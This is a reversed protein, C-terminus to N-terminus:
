SGSGEGGDGGGGGSGGGGSTSGAPGPVPGAGKVTAGSEWKEMLEVAMAFTFGPRGKYKQFIVDAKECKDMAEILKQQRHQVWDENEEALYGDLTRTGCMYSSQRAAEDRGKDVTLKKPMQFGLRWFFPNPPIEKNKIAKATRWIVIRKALKKLLDQRRGITRYAKEVIARASTGGLKEPNIVFEYPMKEAHCGQRELWEMLGHWAPSPRKSEVLEIKNGIKSYRREGPMSLETPLNFTQGTPSGPVAIKTQGTTDNFFNGLPVEPLGLENYEIINSNTQQKAGIMEAIGLEKMDEMLGVCNAFAGMYRVQDFREPDGVLIFDRAPIEIVSDDDQRVHYALHRGASNMVV